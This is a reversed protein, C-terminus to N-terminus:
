QVQEIYYSVADDYSEFGLEAKSLLYEEIIFVRAEESFKNYQQRTMIPDGNAKEGVMESLLEYDYDASVVEIKALKASYDYIKKVVKAKKEDSLTKYEKSKFLIELMEASQMGIQRQHAQKQEADFSYKRGKVTISNPAVRPMVTKDGTSKYLEYIEEAVKGSSKPYENYPSAFARWPDLYQNNEVSEGLVNVQEPLLKRLGPIKSMLENIMTEFSSTPDYTVRRKDDLFSAAQSFIVPINVSPDSLAMDALGALVNKDAAQFFNNLSKLFSQQTFVSGAATFADWLDQGLGTSPDERAEMFEAAIALTSGFPQFWDYTVNVGFIEISYPPIGAVYKEYNAVDKDEDGEGTLKVIGLSAGAIVLLYIMTGTIANSAAKVFERQMQPTFQGNKMAQAMEYAKVGADVLGINNGYQNVDKKIAESMKRYKGIANLFGLPSFDFIAKSINAPTKTFKLMFDGLGYSTGDIHFSNMNRKLNSVMKAMKSDDQWTRQLADETAIDIMDPTPETVNNLRLQNNLSQMFWMEFFPRDGLELCFSTLNDLANLKKAIANITKFRTHENFNKGGSTIGEKRVAHTGLLGGKASGFGEVAYRNLEEQKTHIGRKFDDFTEYIGKGFARTFKMLHERGSKTFLNGVVGSMGTTRVGTKKAVLRDIGSGFYDSAFYVPVMGFNGSINRINTKVNFLMSIRQWARLSQGSEPPIKDQLLSCIEALLIAKPRSDNPMLAAQLTKRRITEIEDPTLEFKHKNNELWRDSKLKVMIEYAKGLEKQAYAQMTNPDFRGIISFIQVQQGSATGMERVREAAKVAMETNGVRQYRDMLLIGVTIDILTTEDLGKEFWGRVYTEGGESLEKVAKNLTEKNSISRYSKVYSDDKLDAKFREDFISSNQMNEYFNSQANGNGSKRQGNIHPTTNADKPTLKAISIPNEERKGNKRSQPEAERQEAQESELDKVRQKKSELEDKLRQTEEVSVGARENAVWDSAFRMAKERAKTVKDFIKNAVMEVDVGSFSEAISRASALGEAYQSNLMSYYIDDLKGAITRKNETSEGYQSVLENALAVTDLEETDTLGISYQRNETNRNVNESDDPININPVVVSGSNATADPSKANILQSTGKKYGEKGIFATVIYLTKAKTDPVAQVVYYSEEGISKEYLVTDATKNYGNKMYSYAQTKGSLSLDDPSKLVFEMKAIDDDSSLSQDSKGSEGHDMLIHNIQRAEIAVKFGKVNVGTLEKIKEAVEDSVNDFYVKENAKFDGTKVKQILSLIGTNVTAFSYQEGGETSNKNQETTTEAQSQKQEWEAQALKCINVFESEIREISTFRKDNKRFATFVKKLGQLIKLVIRKFEGITEPEVDLLAEKLRTMDNSFLNEAVFDAVIERNADEEGFKETGPLRSERYKDVYNKNMAMTASTDGSDEYGKSKVWDKFVKSGMVGNAFTFYTELNKEAFHTLEHKFVEQIAESGKLKSNLYITGTSKDHYGKVNIKRWRMHGDKDEYEVWNKAKVFKVKTGLANGIDQVFKQEENLENVERGEFALKLSPEPIQGAGQTKEDIDTDVNPINDAENSTESKNFGLMTAVKSNQMIEIESETMPSGNLVGVQALAITDAVDPTEGYEILVRKLNKYNKQNKVALDEGIALAIQNYIDPDIDYKKNEFEKALKFAQSDEDMSMALNFLADVSQERMASQWANVGGMGLASVSGLLASYLAEGSFFEIKENTDFAINKWATDLVEQLYEEFGESAANGAFKLVFKGFGSTVKTAIKEGIANKVLGGAKTVGDFLFEMLAESGGVLYGYTRAQEKTYGMNLADIYTNGAASVGMMVANAGTALKDAGLASLLTSVATAPLMNGYTGSLDFVFRGFIGYDERMYQSKYYSSDHTAYNSNMDLGQLFGTEWNKIGTKFNEWIGKLPKGKIKQYDEYGQRQSLDESISALFINASEAGETSYLYNYIGLEDDSLQKIFSHIDDYEHQENVLSLLGNNIIGTILNDFNRGDGPAINDDIDWIRKGELLEPYRKVIDMFMAVTNQNTFNPNNRNQEYANVIDALSGSQVIDYISYQKGGVTSKDKFEPVTEPLQYYSALKEFKTMSRNYEDETEYGGFVSKKNNYASLIEDLSKDLADVDSANESYWEPNYAKANTLVNKYNEVGSVVDSYVNDPSSYVYSDYGSASNKIFDPIKGLETKFYDDDMTVYKGNSFVTKPKLLQNNAQVIPNNDKDVDVYKGNLFITRFKPLQNNSQLTSRNNESIEIYRGDKFITKGSM